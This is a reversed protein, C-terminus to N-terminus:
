NRLKFIMRKLLRAEYSVTKKEDLAELPNIVSPITKCQTDAQDLFDIIEIISQDKLIIQQKAMTEILALFCRKAYYWTDTNIKKNLPELSKIIRSIGFEYNNKACYLTGIVLNVICLHYVNKDPEQVAAKDEERELKRMLEEADENQNVMIYSVCLNAIVMAQLQLLNDNYKKVIPEYYRLAERYKNDQVFFVNAVNLKWTEHDACFEASQKFLKEVAAYNERDWYIKAQAMLVPIYKEICEDFEKLARRIADSDRQQRADQINKTIKRLQDIHKNALADFKRFAEEPSANQLILADIFEFDEPKICKFTLDSNEALVDAALDFYQYKCYLVLLNPFTEPPFPPNSLLHNLKKFGSSPDDEMNMLAQNMLTVPDLEEETRPPMDLLAEKAAPINKITYEIAAKLNFAEILATEKLAQTNGVSKVEIGEANSGVGLEPHERVGKEIIEAINELSPGLQKMKYHCLAVNYAIETNYGIKNIADQFKQRAEEYKEEKYLICGENIITEPDDPDGQALLTKAHDIENKEYRILVQLQILKQQYQSNRISQCAKLAEDYLGDKYLTQAFYLKYEDVDPYYNVLQEYIKSANSFDQNMYYCYALLSLARSRPTFQLEYNLYQIADNYKQDKILTYITKTREGEPIQKIPKM